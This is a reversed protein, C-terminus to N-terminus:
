GGYECEEDSSLFERSCGTYDDKVFHRLANCGLLVPFDKKRGELQGTKIILFGVTTEQREIKVTAQVYGEVPVETGAIGIIKIATDLKGLPGIRPKLLSHFIQSPIVSAEAGTDLICGLQVGAVEAVVAPSPSVLQDLVCGLQVGAVGAVVAPSPSVLEDIVVTVAAAADQKGQVESVDRIEVPRELGDSAATATSSTDM